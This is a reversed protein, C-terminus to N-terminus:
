YKWVVGKLRFEEFLADLDAQAKVQKNFSLLRMHIKKVKNYSILSSALYFYARTIDNQATKDGGHIAEFAKVVSPFIYLDELFIETLPIAIKEFREAAAYAKKDAQSCEEDTPCKSFWGKQWMLYAVAEGCCFCPTEKLWAASPYVPVLDGRKGGTSDCPAYLVALKGKLIGQLDDYGIGLLDALVKRDIFPNVLPIQLKIKLAGVDSFVLDMPRVSSDPLLEPLYDLFSLEATRLDECAARYYVYDTAGDFFDKEM